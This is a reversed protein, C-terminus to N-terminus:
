KVRVPIKGPVAMILSANFAAMRLYKILRGVEVMTIQNDNRLTKQM